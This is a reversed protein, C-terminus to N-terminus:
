NNELANQVKRLMERLADEYMSSIVSAFDNLDNEELPIERDITHYSVVRNSAVDILQFSVALHAAIKEDSQITELRNIFTHLSYDPIFDAARSSVDSFM